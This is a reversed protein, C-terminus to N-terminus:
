FECIGPQITYAGFGKVEHGAEALESQVMIFGITGIGLIEKLQERQPHEKALM